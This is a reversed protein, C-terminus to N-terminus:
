SVAQDAVLERVAPRTHKRALGRLAFAAGMDLYALAKASELAEDGDQKLWDRLREQGQVSAFPHRDLEGRAMLRNALLLIGLGAGGEPLSFQFKDLVRAADPHGAEAFHAFIVPWLYHDRGLDAKVAQALHRVVPRFQYAAMIKLAFLADEEPLFRAAYLHEQVIDNLLRLGRQSLVRFAAESEVEQFLGTLVHLPTSVLSDVERSTPLTLSAHELALCVARADGGGNITFRAQAQAASM